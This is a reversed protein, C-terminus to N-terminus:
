TPEATNRTLYSLQEPTMEKLLLTMAEIEEASLTNGDPTNDKIYSAIKADSTM